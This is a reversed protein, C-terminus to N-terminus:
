LGTKHATVIVFAQLGEGRGFATLDEGTTATIGIDSSQMSLLTALSEKIKGINPSLLPRKGEISISVHHIRYEGLTELAKALYAASDTIGARCM